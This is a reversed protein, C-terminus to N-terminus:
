IMRGQGDFLRQGSGTQRNEILAVDITKQKYKSMEAYVRAIWEPYQIAPITLCGLSWTVGASGNLMGGKHINTHSCMSVKGDRTCALRVGEPYPRLADYRGRHKGKYYKYVGLNLMALNRGSFSPDTNANFSEFLTPSIIFAADDYINIDQKGRAGMSDLYYGRVFVLNARNKDLAFHEIIADIDAKDRKPRAPPLIM